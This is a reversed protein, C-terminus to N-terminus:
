RTQHDCKYDLVWLRSDPTIRIQVSVQFLLYYGLCSDSALSRFCLWVRPLLLKTSNIEESGNPRCGSAFSMEM